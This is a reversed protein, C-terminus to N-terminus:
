PVQGWNGVETFAAGARRETYELLLQQGRSGEAAVPANPGQGLKYFEM